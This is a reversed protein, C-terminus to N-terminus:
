KLDMIEKRSKFNMKNLISSVHTKVTSIGINFEESIEKNTAGKKLLDFIKREQVSLKKIRKNKFFGFKGIIFSLIILIVSIIILITITPNDKSAKFPLKKRFDKIYSDDVKSWKKIYAKYFTENKSYNSEFDSKHLAYLSVLSNNSSDAINLLTEILKEEIFKRKSAGSKSAISDERYVLDTIKQFSVNEKDSTFLADKFPPNTSFTKFRIQSNRNAIFLLFNENIGGIILSTRSDENKVIHLRFVKYENPLFNLDFKFHGLSDIETEAIIMDNSMSYVDKFSPIHSLYIKSSWSDDLTIVGELKGSDSNQGFATIVTFVLLTAIKLAIKFPNVRM